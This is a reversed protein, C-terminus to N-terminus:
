WRPSWWRPSRRYNVVTKPGLGGATMVEVLERLAGNSVESLPREGLTPLIWKDLAHQWGFITAPKVPRRRRSPLSAIWREAQERFTVGPATSSTFTDKRNIGEAEIHERLKRKAVTRTSCIGLSVM